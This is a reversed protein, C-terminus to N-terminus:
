VHTPDSKYSWKSFDIKKDFIETMCYLKGKNKLLNYLLKFEKNPNYFHEIVECCIIYNYYTNLLEPKNHFFPDYVSVNFNKEHLIKTIVPGTGAGFDLGKSEKTFDKIINTTIPSVFNRYNKNFVDNNHKLYRNKEEISNLFHDPILFVSNCNQCINYEKKNFTTYHESNNLCLPCKISM